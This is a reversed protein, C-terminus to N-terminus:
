ELPPIIADLNLPEGADDQGVRFYELLVPYRELIEGYRELQEFRREAQADLTALQAAAERRAAARARLVETALERATLYLELDPLEIREPTVAMIEVFDIQREISDTIEDVIMRYHDSLSLREPQSGVLVMLAEEAAKAIRADLEQYYEDIQEPRLDRDRALSPLARPRIRSQVILRVDYSFAGPGDLIAQIERGSPLTGTLGVPTRHPASEFVYLSLNTPILAQWRWVFTGPEMVDDEWGHTRTFIVGYGDPPVRIQIWGFFFVAGAILILFVLLIAFRKM